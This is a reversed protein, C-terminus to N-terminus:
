DCREQRRSRLLPSRGCLSSSLAEQGGHIGRVGGRLLVYLVLLRGGFWTWEVEATKEPGTKNM